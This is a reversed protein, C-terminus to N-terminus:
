LTMAKQENKLSYLIRRGTCSVCTRDRPQSSGRSYILAVSELIGARFIGHVSSGPPSCDTPTAFLQARDFPSLSTNMPVGGPKTDLLIDSQKISLFAFWTNAQQPNLSNINEQMPSWVDVAERRATHSEGLM